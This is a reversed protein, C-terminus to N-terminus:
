HNYNTILYLGALVLMIGFLGGLAVREGLFLVSSASVLAFSLATFAYVNILKEKGLVFIWIATGAGYLLLGVIIPLNIFEALQHRGQAGIKLLLQGAAASFSSLVLLMINIKEV